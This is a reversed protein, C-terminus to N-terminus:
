FADEVAGFSATGGLADAEGDESDGMQSGSQSLQFARSRVFDHLEDAGVVARCIRQVVAATIESNLVSQFEENLTEFQQRHKVSGNGEIKLTQLWSKYDKGVIAEMLVDAVPAFETILTARMSAAAAEDEVAAGGLAAVNDAVLESTANLLLQRVNGELDKEFQEASLSLVDASQMFPDRLVGSADPMELLALSAVQMEMLDMSDNKMHGEELFNGIKHRRLTVQLAWEYVDAPNVDSYGSSSLKTVLRQTVQRVEKKIEPALDKEKANGAADGSAKQSKREGGPSTDSDCDGDFDRNSHYEETAISLLRDAELTPKKTGGESREAMVVDLKRIVTERLEKSDIAIKLVSIVQKLTMHTDLPVFKKTSSGAKAKPQAEDVAGNVAEGDVELDVDRRSMVQGIASRTFLFFLLDTADYTEEIFKGFLEIGYSQTRLLEVSSVAGWCNASVLAKLGYRKAAWEYIFEPFSQAPRACMEGSKIWSALKVEAFKAYRADYVEDFFKMLAPKRQAKPATILTPLLNCFRTYRRRL